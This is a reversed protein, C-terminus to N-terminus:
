KTASIPLQANIRHDIENARGPDPLSTWDPDPKLSKVYAIWTDSIGPTALLDEVNGQSRFVANIFRFRYKQEDARLLFDVMARYKSYFHPNTTVIGAGAATQLDEVRGEKVEQVFRTGFAHKPFRGFEFHQHDSAHGFQFYVGIGENLWQPLRRIYVQNLAHAAEHRVATISGASRFMVHLKGTHFYAGYTKLLASDAGAADADTETAYLNAMFRTQPMQPLEFLDCYAAVIADLDDAVFWLVELPATGCVDFYRGRATRRQTWERHQRDFEDATKLSGDSTQLLGKEAAARDSNALWGYKPHRFKGAIRMSLEFSDVWRADRGHGNLTYGLYKRAKTNQQDIELISRAFRRSTGYLTRDYAAHVLAWLQQPNKLDSQEAIQELDRFPNSDITPASPRQLRSPQGPNQAHAQPLCIMVVCAFIAVKGIQLQLCTAKV